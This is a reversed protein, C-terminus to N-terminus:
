IKKNQYEQLLSQSIQLVQDEGEKLGLWKLADRPYNFISLQLPIGDGMLRFAEASTNLFNNMSIIATKEPQHGNKVLQRNLSLLARIEQLEVNLEAYRVDLIIKMEPVRMPDNFTSREASLFESGSCLGFGAYYILKITPDIKYLVPM